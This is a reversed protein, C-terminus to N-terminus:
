STLAVQELVVFDAGPMPEHFLSVRACSYVPMADFIEQATAKLASVHAPSVDCLPGTLSVHFRFQDLVYPYGWRLLLDDQEPTLGAERRRALDRPALPAALPQLTRVCAAALADLRAKCPHVPDPVLALFDDLLVVKLRPMEFAAWNSALAHLANLVDAVTVSPALAFPARLTGHWGYRRPAATLESFQADSLGDVKPPAYKQGTAACRGLWRSGAEWWLSGVEPAEYVAYRGSLPAEPIPIDTM